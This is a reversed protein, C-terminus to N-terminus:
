HLLCHLVITVCVSPLCFRLCIGKKWHTASKKQAHSYSVLIICYNTLWFFKTHTPKKKKPCTFPQCISVFINTLLKTLGETIIYLHSRNGLFSIKDSSLADIESRSGTKIKNIAKKRISIFAFIQLFSTIFNTLTWIQPANNINARGVYFWMINHAWQVRNIYKNANSAMIHCFQLEFIFISGFILWPKLISGM